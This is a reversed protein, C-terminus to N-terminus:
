FRPAGLQYERRREIEELTRSLNIEADFREEARIARAYNKVLALLERTEDPELHQRVYRHLQLEAGIRALRQTDGVHAM